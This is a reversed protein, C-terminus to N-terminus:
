MNGMVFDKLVGLFERLLNNPLTVPYSGASLGEIHAYGQKKAINLARFMHFDNTVLVVRESEPAFFGASYTLNEYTNRSKDEALIREEDIGRAILYQQMGAAEPISESPGKGGSVIVTAEPNAILYEYAKDLRKKLLYGPGNETWEAGLVLVRDSGPAPRAHFSGFILGLVLAFVGFGVAAAIGLFWKVTAPLDRLVKKQVLIGLLILAAGMIGWLLFFFTGFNVFLGIALCYLICLAGLAILIVPVVGIRQRRADKASSVYIVRRTKEVPILEDGKRRRRM